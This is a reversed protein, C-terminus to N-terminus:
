FTMGSRSGTDSDSESEPQRRFPLTAYPTSNHDDDGAAGPEDPADEDRLEVVLPDVIDDDDVLQPRGLLPPVEDLPPIGVVEVLVVEQLQDDAVADREGDLGDDM